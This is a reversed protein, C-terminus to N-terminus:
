PKGAFDWLGIRTANQNREIVALVAGGGPRFAVQALGQWTKVRKGTAVDWVILADAYTISVQERGNLVMRRSERGEGGHVALLHNDTTFGGDAHVRRAGEPPPLFEGSDADLLVTPETTRFCAMRRHDPSFVIVARSPSERATPAGGLPEKRPPRRGDPDAPAAAEATPLAKEWLKVGQDVDWVTLKQNPDIVGFRRGDPSLGFGRALGPFRVPTRLTQGTTASVERVEVDRYGDAPDHDLVVTRITKGDSTFAYGYTNNGDLDITREKLMGGNPGAKDAFAWFELRNIGSILRNELVATVLRSGGPTFGVLKGMTPLHVWRGLEGPALTDVIMVTNPNKEGFPGDSPSVGQIALWTGKPSWAVAIPNTLQIDITKQLKPAAFGPLGQEGPNPVAV